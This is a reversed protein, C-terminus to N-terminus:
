IEEAAVPVFPRKHSEFRMCNKWFELEVDGTPGNRQKAILMNVRLWKKSWDADRKSLAALMEDKLKPQYLMGVVDADAEIRGSERLDALRPKRNPEREIERNFQALVIIPVNLEKALSKLGNSMEAVEQERNNYYRSAVMLQLYDVVFLKVGYRDVMRRAKSRLQLVNLGPTDDVWLQSLQIKKAAVTLKPMDGNEFFGTRFRQYDARAVQFLMRAGLEKATMELSFVGVPLKNDISVREVINMALSTKGLGPRAAIIILQGGVMGCTMKDLYDFGTSIGIMQAAGRHYDELRDIASQVFEKASVECSPTGEEGVELFGAEVEDLVKRHESETSYIKSVAQTCTALMRRLVYKEHVIDLYYSLNAASPVADPLGALYNLGGCQELLNKDKLRQALTLGDIGTGAADLEVMANYITQNRLDFFAAGGAKLRILCEALCEKPALLVCGLVGAEAEPSHPPLRDVTESM